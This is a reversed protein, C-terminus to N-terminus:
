PKYRMFSPIFLRISAEYGPGPIPDVLMWGDAGVGTYRNCIAVAMAPLDSQPADGVFTLIFDNKAGHLKVHTIKM